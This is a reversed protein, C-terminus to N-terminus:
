RKAKPVRLVGRWGRNPGHGLAASFLVKVSDAVRNGVFAWGDRRTLTDTLLWSSTGRDFSRSEQITRYVASGMMEVGMKKAMQVAEDYTLDCRKDPSESSLDAFIFETETADILDPSGDTEEMYVLALMLAPNDKLVKKVDTFDVGEPHKYYRSNRDNNSFRAELTALLKEQEEPALENNFPFNKVTKKLERLEEKTYQQAKVGESGAEQAEQYLCTEVDNLICFRAGCKSEM